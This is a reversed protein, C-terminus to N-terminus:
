PPSASIIPNPGKYIPGWPAGEGGGGPTSVALLRGDIFWSAPRWWVSSRSAGQEQVELRWFWPSRIDSTEAACNM